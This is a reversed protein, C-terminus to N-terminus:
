KTPDANALTKHLDHMKELMTTQLTNNMKGLEHKTQVGALRVDNLSMLNEDINPKQLSLAPCYAKMM